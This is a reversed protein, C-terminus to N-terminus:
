GAVLRRPAIRGDDLVEGVGLFENIGSSSRECLRVWGTTPAHAVQVAQGQRVYFASADTLTVEPWQGV